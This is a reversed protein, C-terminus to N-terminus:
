VMSFHDHNDLYEFIRKLRKNNSFAKLLLKIMPLVVWQGAWYAAELALMIIFFPIAKLIDFFMM